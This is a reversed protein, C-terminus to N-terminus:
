YVFICDVIFSSSRHICDMDYKEEKDIHGGKEGVKRRHKFGIVRLVISFLYDKYHSRVM